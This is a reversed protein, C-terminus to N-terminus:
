PEAQAREARQTGPKGVNASAVTAMYWEVLGLLKHWESGLEIGQDVLILRTQRVRAAMDRIQRMPQFRRKRCQGHLQSLVATVRIAAQAFYHRLDVLPNPVVKSSRASRGWPARSPCSGQERGSNSIQNGDHLADM